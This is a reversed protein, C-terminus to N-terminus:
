RNFEKRFMDIVLSKYDNSFPVFENSYFLKEFESLSLWKVQEVEEEQLKFESIDLNLKLLYIQAIEYLDDDICEGIFRYDEEKTKIGLEEQTERVAGMISTEGHIVHGASPMDWYGPFNKKCIARKQVLIENKDNIIWIWVPKHYCGPNGNHCFSKEKIGLYEGERTYVDFLEEM